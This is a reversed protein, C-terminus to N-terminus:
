KPFYKTREMLFVFLIIQGVFPFLMWLLYIAGRDTDHLRRVVLSMTPVILVLFLVISLIQMAFSFLSLIAFLITIVVVSIFPMFFEKRNSVGLFDFSYLFFKRFQEM